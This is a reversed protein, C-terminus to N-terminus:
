ALFIKSFSHSTLTAFHAIAQRNLTINFNHNLDDFGEKKNSKM